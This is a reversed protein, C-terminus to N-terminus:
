YVTKFPASLKLNHVIDAVSGIGAAISILFCFMSLGQLMAWKSSGRSIKNQSVHMRVPFYVSLPWFSLAGIIGLIANFLPMLLSVLTTLMILASRFVLKLLTYSLYSKDTFPVRITYTRHIFKANPWRAAVTEEFRAFIPQAYVQFM